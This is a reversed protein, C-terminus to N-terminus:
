RNVQASAEFGRLLGDLDHSTLSKVAALSVIAAQPLHEFAAGSECLVAVPMSPRIDRLNLLTETLDMEKGTSILVAIDFNDRRAQALASHADYMWAVNWGHDMLRADLDEDLESSVIMIKPSRQNM